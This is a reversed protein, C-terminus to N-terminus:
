TLSVGKTKRAAHVAPVPSPRGRELRVVQIAAQTGERALVTVRTRAALHRAVGSWGFRRHHGPYPCPRQRRGRLCSTPSVGGDRRAPTGVRRHEILAILGPARGLKRVMNQAGAVDRHHVTGCAPGPASWPGAVSQPWRGAIPATRPPAARRPSGPPPGSTRWGTACPEQPTCWSGATRGATRCRAPMGTGCEARTASSWARPGPGPRRAGPAPRPLAGPAKEDPARTGHNHAVDDGLNPM